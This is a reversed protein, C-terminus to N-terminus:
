TSLNSDIKDYAPMKLFVLGCFFRAAFNVVRPIGCNLIAGCGTTGAFGDGGKM